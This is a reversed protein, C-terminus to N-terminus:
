DRKLAQIKRYLTADLRKGPLTLRMGGLMTQDVAERLALTKGGALQKISAKLEDTLPYATIVDAVVIGRDMLASEIDRVLLELERTRRSDILFAALEQIVIAANKGSALKDATYAALKRRSIRLAM